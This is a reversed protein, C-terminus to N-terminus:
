SAAKLNMMPGPTTLWGAAEKADMAKGFLYGQGFGCGADRLAQLQELTEFEAEALILGELDGQFEDVAVMLLDGVKEPAVLAHSTRSRVMAGSFLPRTVWVLYGFIGLVAFIVGIGGATIGVTTARDVWRVIPRTRPSRM